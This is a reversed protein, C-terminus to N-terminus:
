SPIRQKPPVPNPGPTSFPNRCELTINVHLNNLVSKSHNLEPLL